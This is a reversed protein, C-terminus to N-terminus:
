ASETRADGTNSFGSKGFITHYQRELELAVMVCLATSLWGVICELTLEPHEGQILALTIRGYSVGVEGTLEKGSRSALLAVDADRARLQESTLTAVLYSKSGIPITAIPEPLSRAQPAVSEEQKKYRPRLGAELSHRLLRKQAAGTVITSALLRTNGDCIASVTRQATSHHAPDKSADRGRM